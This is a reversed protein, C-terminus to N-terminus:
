GHKTLITTVRNKGENKSQYLANDVRKILECESDTNDSITVGFSATLKQASEFSHRYISQRLNEAIKEVIRLETDPLLIMFEEGGWRALIDTKRISDRALLAVDKLVMDGVDHGFNDNIMKFNDLDFMIVGLTSPITRVKELHFRLENDFKLRNFTDTLPDTSGDM